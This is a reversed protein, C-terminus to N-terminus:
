IVLDRPRESTIVQSRKQLRFLPASNLFFPLETQAQRSLPPTLPTDESLIWRVHLFGDRRRMLLPVSIALASIVPPAPNMPECRESTSSSRPHITSIMSSREVPLMSFM